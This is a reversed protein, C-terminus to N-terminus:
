TIVVEQLIWDTSSKMYVSPPEVVIATSGMSCDPLTSIDSKTDCVFEYLSENNTREPRFQQPLSSLWSSYINNDM